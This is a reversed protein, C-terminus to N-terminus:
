AHINDSVPAIPRSRRIGFLRLAVTGFFDRTRSDRLFM